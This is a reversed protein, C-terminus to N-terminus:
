SINNGQLTCSEKFLCWKCSKETRNKVYEKQVYSGDEAVADSIFLDIFGVAKNLSPKGNAPEFVQVRKKMIAFEADEPVKRKVIFYQINISDLPINFMRHLFEKYLVLQSTKVKDTKESHWGSGSTKFDVILWKGTEENYFLADIFGKFYFKDKLPVLLPIETGVLWTTRASDFYVKRHKKIFDLIAIGDEYFEQLEKPTSFDKGYSAKNSKYLEKLKDLLMRNLDLEESAKVSKNYLVDLWHQIVEHIATGFILHITPIFPAEKLVYSRYWCYPCNLYVSLQSFSISKSGKEQHNQNEQIM